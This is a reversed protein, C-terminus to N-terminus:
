RRYLEKWKDQKSFWYLSLSTNSARSHQFLVPLNLSFPSKSGLENEKENIFRMVKEKKDQNFEWYENNESFVSYDSSFVESVIIKINPFQKELEEISEQYGGFVLYYFKIDPNIESIENLTVSNKGFHHAENWFIKFQNGTGIVDDYFVFIKKKMAIMLPIDNIDVFKVEKSFCDSKKYMASLSYASDSPDKDNVPIFCMHGYLKELEKNIVDMSDYKKGVQGSIWLDRNLLRILNKVIFNEQECSYYILMDLLVLGVVRDNGFNTLFIEIDSLSIGNWIYNTMFRVKKMVQKEWKEDTM